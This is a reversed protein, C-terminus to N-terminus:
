SVLKYAESLVFETVDPSMVARMVLECAESMRPAFGSAILAESEGRMVGDLVAVTLPVGGVLVRQDVWHWLLGVAIEATAADEMKGGMGVCGNGGLWASWYALAVRVADRVGAETVGGEPVVLLEGLDLEREGPVVGMQNVRSRLVGKWVSMAVGVLDPHAVWTGDHGLVVERLKDERVAAVAVAAAEPDKRSPVQAAMGGIAYAGRRHAVNVVWRAYEALGRSGMTLLGRDPLVWDVGEVSRSMVKLMSFIYDWRGVNLGVLRERLAWVMEELRLLGPLTEVLVTVRVANVPLKLEKEVWRLVRDWWRAEWEGELKALYLSPTKRRLILERANWWLFLGLDVLAAPAEEGDVLWKSERLHLGRPRYHLTPVEVPLDGLGSMSAVTGRVIGTVTSHTRLVNDWTCCLSDEGDVMYCSAGSRLANVAMKPEVAPGTIEVKRDLLDGPINGVRWTGERVVEPTPVAAVAAMHGRPDRRLEERTKLLGAWDARFERVLDDIFKTSWPDILNTKSLM